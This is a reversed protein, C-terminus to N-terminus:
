KLVNLEAMSTWPNGHVETLARLRVYRGSKSPFLVQKESATNAFTGTAVPSGWNAGDTSVYFQYQGIRGHTSSPPRPLYRFGRLTYTAGLNVQIEHPPPPNASYWQTHWFTNPNGDIANTAAGNEGV